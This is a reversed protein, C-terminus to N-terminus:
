RWSRGNCGTGGRAIPASFLICFSVNSLTGFIPCRRGFRSIRRKSINKLKLFVNHSMRRALWFPKWFRRNMEHTKRRLSAFLNTPSLPSSVLKLLLLLHEFFVVIWIRQLSTMDPFYFLLGNSTFGVLATNTMIAITCMLELITM